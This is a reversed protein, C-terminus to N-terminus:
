PSPERRTERRRAATPKAPLKECTPPDMLQVELDAIRRDQFRVNSRAAKLREDLAQNEQSLQRVRRKLTANETTIRQISDDTWESELDRIQGMLSGIHNRQKVIEEHATKLMAEANLARERWSAKAEADHPAEGAQRDAITAMGIRTIATRAAPNEYLFTRSVGARRAVGAVTIPTNDRRMRAIADQVRKLASITKEQRAATAAATRLARHPSNM